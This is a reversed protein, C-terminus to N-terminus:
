QVIYLLSLYITSRSMDLTYHATVTYNYILVTKFAAKNWVILLYQWLVCRSM